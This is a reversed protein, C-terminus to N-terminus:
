DEERLYQEIIQKVKNYAEDISVGQLQAGAIDIHGGGGLKEMLVHVNIKGLSRASIFITGDKEGLIFSAEINKVTLLEDAAQAIVVNINETYTKSYSICIKNDIIHTNSIIDAKAKFDEVNTRFLKKVETTDAGLKKLYSAAEFTRVGTKFAFFKTDLNIGALLGEATLKNIKVDDELYQVVETVMECTSSVYIEHFALVTNKISEVGKRHHDIVAVKKSISLLEECETYSPRHTDVVVVLTDRTCNKIAEERSIFLDNYYECKNLRRVFEDISENVQDLVIHTEKKLSKCIDYIGVASGLADLDPYKHGMIYIMESQSVIEKLAHGILRSKVKTTKEVAKSKGGYFEFKDKTKVIAQDGGRGLALDLAGTALQINEYISEGDRGVGISITVPLTNGYDIDRITDLITFKNEQLKSLGKQNTIVIYKDKSTRKVAAHLDTELGSLIRELEVSILSRKEESASKLVEDYGDVQILMIINKEEEYKQALNLYETKDIWYLMMLYKVQKNQENKIVNYVVTYERDKYCVDTYMEKNENLVKRLNINKIINDINEGLLDPSETMEYFKKNYWSINGDFELICLPIPLNMIAKKTTEDIDLSLNEIYKNWEKKRFNSIRWNHFVIYIFIFFFLCGVYLNYFLLALSTIGIILIYINIEPMNIKFNPKNRM